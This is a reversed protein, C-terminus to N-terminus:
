NEEEPEPDDEKFNRYKGRNVKSPTRTKRSFDNEAFKKEIYHCTRCEATRRFIRMKYKPNMQAIHSEAEFDKHIHCSQCYENIMRNNKKATFDGDFAEEIIRTYCGSFILGLILVVILRVCVSKFKGKRISITEGLGTNGSLNNSRFLHAEERQNDARGCVSATDSM